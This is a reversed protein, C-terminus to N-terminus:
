RGAEAPDPEVTNEEVDTLLERLEESALAEAMAQRSCAEFETVWRADVEDQRREFEDGDIEDDFFPAECDFWIDDDYDYAAQIMAAAVYEAVIEAIKAPHERVRPGTM